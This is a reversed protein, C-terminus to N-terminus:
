IFELIFQFSIADLEFLDGDMVDNRELKEAEEQAELIVGPKFFDQPEVPLYRQTTEQPVFQKERSGGVHAM